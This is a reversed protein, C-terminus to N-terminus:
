CAPSPPSAANHFLMGGMEEFVRLIITAAFLNQDITTEEFNLMPHLENWCSAYYKDDLLPDFGRDTFRMHRAALAFIANM